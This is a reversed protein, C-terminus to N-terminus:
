ASWAVGNSWTYTYNGGTGNGITAKVSGDNAGPCANDVTALTAAPTPLVTLNVLEIDFCGTRNSVRAWVYNSASAYTTPLPNINRTADSQSAFYAVSLGSVGSTATADADTLTFKATAGNLVEPCAKLQVPQAIPLALVKLKFSVM